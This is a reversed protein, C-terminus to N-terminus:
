LPLKTNGTVKGKKAVCLINARLGRFFETSNVIREYAMFVLFLVRSNMGYSPEKEILEMETIEFGTDM